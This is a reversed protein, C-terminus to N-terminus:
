QQRPVEQSQHSHPRSSTEPNIVEDSDFLGANDFATARFIADGPLPYYFLTWVYEPGTGTVTEQIENNFYFEVRNMDSMADNAIATFQFEWGEMPSWGLVEYSLSVDPVTQDMDITIQNHPSEENGVCDVAWYEIM